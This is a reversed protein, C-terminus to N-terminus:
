GLARLRGLVARAHDLDPIRATETVEITLSSAQFTSAALTQELIDLVRDDGLMTASVNISLRFPGQAFPSKSIAEVSEAFVKRPLAEMRGAHECTEIFYSPAISGREPDNWRVLAEFGCLTETPLHFQPQYVVYIQGGKLAADINAQLSVNWIRD